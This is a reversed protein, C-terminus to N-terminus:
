GAVIVTVTVIVTVASLFARAETGPMVATESRRVPTEHVIL